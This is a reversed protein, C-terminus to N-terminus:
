QGLRVLANRLPASSIRIVGAFPPYLELILFIAASVSLVCVFLVVVFTANRPAQLGFSIFIITIWSVIVTLFPRPHSNTQQELMLRRTQRLDIVINLAQSKAASSTVAQTPAPGSV